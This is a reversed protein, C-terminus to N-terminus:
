KELLLRFNRKTPLISQLQLYFFGRTRKDLVNAFLGPYSYAVLTAIAAGVPGYLPVLWFILLINIGATIFTRAVQLKQLRENLLWVEVILGMAVFPLSWIHITLAPIAPLYAAGFLISVIVPGGISTALAIITTILTISILSKQIRKLYHEPNSRKAQAILPAFVTYVSYPLFYWLESLRAAAAYIGVDYTSTIWPMIVKDIKMYLITGIGALVLPWASIFLEKVASFSTHISTITFNLHKRASLYVFLGGLISDLSYSILIALLGADTLVLYIRIASTLLFSAQGALVPISQRQKAYFWIELTEFFYFVFHITAFIVLLPHYQARAFTVGIAVALLFASMGGILKLVIAADIIKREKEPNAAIDRLLLSNVGINAIPGFLAAFATLSNLLGYNQPALYRAVLAGVFMSVLLRLIKDGALWSVGKVATQKTQSQPLFSKLAQIIQM